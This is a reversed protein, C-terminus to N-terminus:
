KGFYAKAAKNYLYLAKVTSVLDADLETDYSLVQYAYSLACIKINYINTDDGIAVTYVTDLDKASINAISICYVGTGVTAPTVENGDVTIKLGDLTTATFYIKLTTASELVLSTSNMAVGDPLTGEVQTAYSELQEATVDEGTYEAQTDGFYAKAMEGYQVLTKCLATM